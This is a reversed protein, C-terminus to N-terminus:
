SCCEESSVLWGASSALGARHAECFTLHVQVVLGSSRAAAAHCAQQLVGTTNEESNEPYLFIQAFNQALVAAQAELDEIRCDSRCGFVIARDSNASAGVMQENLGDLTDVLRRLSYVNRPRSILVRKSERDRISLRGALAVNDAVRRLSSKIQDIDVNLHWAAAVAAMVNEIQFLSKGHLTVALEDARILDTRQQSQMLQIVGASLVVARKGEALHEQLSSATPDSSFLIVDGKSLPKMNMVASDVANLVAAGHEMVVDVPTRKVAFLKEENWMDFEGGLHDPQTLNTVVAVDCKDFGLGHRLIGDASAEFVAATVDISDLVDRASRAGDDCPKNTVEWDGIQMGASDASGVCHTPRLMETVLRAVTTKGSSGTVCVIPIRSSSDPGYIHNIILEGIPRPQGKAPSLHMLLGPGANVEVVAGRQEEIPKSIDEIVLDIGAIDLGVTRAALAARKAVEPHVLDTVDEDLNDHRQVMVVQGAQPISSVTLKQQQLILHVAPTIEVPSLPQTEDEGRRPDSNVQLQILEEIRHQGDGTVTVPNGRAAAVVKGDIVLLRHEIGRVFREVIVGSGEKEAGHFARVIEEQTTLNPAVGRGHNADRPKVVVPGDIEQAAVWADDADIVWRGEPVPVHVASLLQRTLQKDSAIAEGISSTRDTVATWIRRQKAGQGLKVLSGQSLRRFPINRAQAAALIAKSSPGLCRRDAMDHLKFVVGSVDFPQDYICAYLLDRAAYLCQEAVSEEEYRIAVKFVGEESMERARGFGVVCGALTQLELTTHELIHALYTGRDLRQFFGGRVGESCRHEIVSPLWAKYRDNFGPILESSWDKLNALDVWVEMVPNRSWLNPGRLFMLRRFTLAPNTPDLPPPKEASMPQMTQTIFTLATINGYNELDRLALGAVNVQFRIYDQFNM